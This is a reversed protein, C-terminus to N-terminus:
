FHPKIIFSKNDNKPSKQDNTLWEWVTNSCKWTFRASLHSSRPNVLAGVTSLIGLIAQAGGQGTDGINQNGYFHPTCLGSVRDAEGEVSCIQITHQITHERSSSVLGLRRQGLEYWIAAEERGEDKRRKLVCYLIM